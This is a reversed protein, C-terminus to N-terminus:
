VLPLFDTEQNETRLEAWLSDMEKQVWAFAERDSMGKLKLIKLYEFPSCGHTLYFRQELNTTNYM